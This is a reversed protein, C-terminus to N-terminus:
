LIYAVSSTTPRLWCSTPIQSASESAIHKPRVDGCDQSSTGVAVPVVVPKQRHLGPALGRGSTKEYRRRAPISASQRVIPRSGAGPVPGDAQAKEWACWRTQELWELPTQARPKRRQSCKERPQSARSLRASRLARRPSRLSIAGQAARSALRQVWGFLAAFGVAGQPHEVGGPNSITTGTSQTLLILPVPPVRFLRTPDDHQHMWELSARSGQQPSVPTASLIAAGEYLEQAVLPHVDLWTRGVLVLWIERRGGKRPRLTRMVAERPMLPQCSIGTVGRSTSWGDGQESHWIGEGGEEAHRGLLLRRSVLRSAARKPFSKRESRISM